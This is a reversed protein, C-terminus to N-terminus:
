FYKVVAVVGLDAEENEAVAAALEGAVGDRQGVFDAAADCHGRRVAV